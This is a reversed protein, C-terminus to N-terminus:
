EIGSGCFTGKSFLSVLLRCLSICFWENFVQPNSGGHSVSGKTLKGVGDDWDWDDDDGYDEEEEDELEGEGMKEHNQLDEFRVGDEERIAKLDINESFIVINLM